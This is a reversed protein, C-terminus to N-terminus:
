AVKAVEMGGIRRREMRKGAEEEENKRGQCEVWEEEM